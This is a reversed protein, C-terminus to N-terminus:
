LVNQSFIYMHSRVPFMMQQMKIKTIGRIDRRRQAPHLFLISLELKGQAFLTMKPKNTKAQDELCKCHSSRTQRM